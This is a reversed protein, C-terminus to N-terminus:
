RWQALPTGGVLEVVATLKQQLAVSALQLNAYFEAEGSAHEGGSVQSERDVIDTIAKLAVFPVDGLQKCVWAIAAAEMEKVSAGEAVMLERDRATCDLSDSTSVVGRKLGAARALAGLSPSRLHQFGYEELGDRSLADPIRRDHFVCKTSLYVDGVAAGSGGGCGSFGGATGASIVLDPTFALVAAYSSITSPVTGVANGGFRASKGAWVLIVTADGLRGRFARFAVTNPWPLNAADLPLLGHRAIFPAAEQEMAMLVLITRVGTASSVRATTTTTPAAASSQPLTTPAAGSSSTSKKSKSERRLLILALATATAAGLAFSKLEKGLM